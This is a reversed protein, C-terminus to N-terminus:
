PQRRGALEAVFAAHTPDALGSNLTLLVRHSDNALMAAADLWLGPFATSRYIGDEPVECRVLQGDRNEFWFLESTQPALVVYERVGGREYAQRKQRLDLNRTSVGVEVVLEPGGALYDDAYALQGGCEPLVYLCVDPQVEDRDQTLYVTGDNSKDVGPTHAEYVGIWMMLTGHSNSHRRSVPCAVFVVGDILEAKFKEPTQLYLAHFTARDMQAGDHLADRAEAPSSNQRTLLSM